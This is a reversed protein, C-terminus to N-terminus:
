CLLGDDFREEMAGEALRCMEAFSCARLLLRMCARRLRCIRLRIPNQTQRPRIAAVAITMASSFPVGGSFPWLGCDPCYEAPM